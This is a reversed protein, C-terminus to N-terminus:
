KFKSLLETKCVKGVGTGYPFSVTRGYTQLRKKDNSNLAIKNIEKTYVNHEESKVRQQLKLIIKNKLLCNRYDNFKLIKEM